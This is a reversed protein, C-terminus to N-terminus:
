AAHQLSEVVGDPNSWRTVLSIDELLKLDEPTWVDMTDDFLSVFGLAEPGVTLQSLDYWEALVHEAVSRAASRSGTTLVNVLSSRAPARVHFDVTWTRGSRGVLREGRDFAFQRETLFDAVEDTVSEVARTRFTFWLDSVRVAAQAVRMAVMAFDDTSRCRALLMGKYFEVGHTQCVDEILARQKPSRKPALTQMRLWRTTEGLDSIVLVDGAPRTFLDINDGDPYLYPTRIRDYEGQHSCVFLNSLTRALRECPSITNM